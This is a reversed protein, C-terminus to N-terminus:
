QLAFAEKLLRGQNWPMGSEVTYRGISNPLKIASDLEMSDKRVSRKELCESDWKLLSATWQRGGYANYHVWWSLKAAYLTTSSLKLDRSWIGAASAASLKLRTQGMDETCILSSWKALIILHEDYNGISDVVYSRWIQNKITLLRMLYFLGSIVVRSIYQSHWWSYGLM